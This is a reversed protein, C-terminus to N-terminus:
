PRTGAEREHEGEPAPGMTTSRWGTAALTEGDPDLAVVRWDFRDQGVRERLWEPARYSAVGPQRLAALVEEGDADRFEVRYLTAATVQTWSFILPETVPLVQDAEPQVLRMAGSVLGLRGGTGVYYRLPPIPFGAVAGALLLGDGAGASAFSSNAEKDDTAEIRLLVRYLGKMHTPLAEPDPGELTFEGTPPLFVNFRELETYRRQTGRLEPPLTAETLLDENTPPDEGPLVVEWRGVLRGTGNYTIKAQIPPIEGATDLSLVNDQTDFELRVDLLSFPVRAGGGALRCTVSVYEDPRLGDPDVFRRVYFFASNEGREAAQYARRAVSPPISMVDVLGNEGASRVQAYRIPLNGFITGPACRQGVAPAADVLEGCWTAEVPVMGDLNGYTILVSTAGFANVNVGTPHRQIQAAAPTAFVLALGATLISRRTM